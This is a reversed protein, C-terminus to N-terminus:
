TLLQGTIPLAVIKEKAVRGDKLWAAGFDRVFTHLVRQIMTELEPGDLALKAQLTALARKGASARLKPMPGADDFIRSCLETLKLEPFPAVDVLEDVEARAVAAAFLRQPTLEAMTSGFRAIIEAPSPSLLAQFVARQQRVRHLSAESEALERRARFPVPEAGPVKLAKLPRRGLLAALAASEEELALWTEGFRSGEEHVLKEVQRKLKLTLSFGCQFLARLTTERVVDTAMTPDGGTYHELGLDLYDRAHESLRKIALPDGPEAGDAVLVCNVLYRVEGELNQREVSDLGQFAAAVYDVRGQVPALASKPKVKAIKEPDVWAFVKVSEELPPFGLDELRARRFQYAAEELETVAEWRVSELFRGLEFPNQTVLDFTLRRLAAEDVGDIRFELLYRGEPMEMTPGELDVDPNEELDHITVLRKYILELVEMDLASVKKLFDEDDEGRAARLWHLVELPDMRDRQWAALDVFTRFQEPTALQVIETSDPLGVDIITSYVDEAPLSRVLAKGDVEEMMADIRNKPALETLRRVLEARRLLRKEQSSSM